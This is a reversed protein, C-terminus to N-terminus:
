GGKRDLPMFMFDTRAAPRKLPRAAACLAAHLTVASPTLNTSGQWPLQKSRVTASIWGAINAAVVDKACLADLPLEVVGVIVGPMCDGIDLRLAKSTRFGAKM